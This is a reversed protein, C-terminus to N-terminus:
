SRFGSPSWDAQLPRLFILQSVAGFLCAANPSPEVLFLEWVSAVEGCKASWQLGGFLPRVQASEVTEFDVFAYSDKGRQTKLNVGNPRLPGFQSLKAVLEEITM